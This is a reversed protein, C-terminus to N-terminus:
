TYLFEIISQLTGPEQLSSDLRTHPHLHIMWHDQLMQHQAKAEMKRVVVGMKVMEPFETLLYKLHSNGMDWISNM